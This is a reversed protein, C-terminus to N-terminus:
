SGFGEPLGSCLWERGLLQLSRCLPERGLVIFLLVSKVAGWHSLAEEEGEQQSEPLRADARGKM